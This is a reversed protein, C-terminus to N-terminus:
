VRQQLFWSSALQAQSSQMTILLAVEKIQKKFHKVCRHLLILWLYYYCCHWQKGRMLVSDSSIGEHHHVTCSVACILAEMMCATLMIAKVLHLWQVCQFISLQPVALLASVAAKCVLIYLKWLEARSVLLKFFHQLNHAPPSYTLVKRVPIWAASRLGLFRGKNERPFGNVSKRLDM